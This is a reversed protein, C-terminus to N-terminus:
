TGLPEYSFKQGAVSVDFMLGGKAITFVAMGNRYEGATRADNQGGSAGAEDGTTGAKASAGATIAVVGADAGFEFRGSAFEDYARKDEFFIIESYAKGGAQFGVSVQSMSTHAVRKGHVYVAGNGHAGGVVLGGEGITPFVAYGYSHSFFANSRGADKFRVITDSEPGAAAVGSFVCLMALLSARVMVKVILKEL